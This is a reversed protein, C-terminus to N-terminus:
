PGIVDNSRIPRFYGKICTASRVALQIHNKEQFGAGDYVPDGEFFATRVTDYPPFGGVQTDLLERYGHLTEIVARDLFRAGRDSNAPMPEGSQAYTAALTQHALRLEALASRDLLNLCYGLDLVAGIVFPEAIHGHANRPRANRAEAFELARQPDNEWFYIGNGLWDYKNESPKLHEVRGCLIDEGVTRECGHFGLVLGPLRQYLSYPAAM